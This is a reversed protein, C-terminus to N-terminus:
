NTLWSAIKVEKTDDNIDTSPNVEAFAYGQNGLINIFFDEIGSIQSQSYTTGTLASTVNAYASIAVPIDGVVDVGSITYKDGEFLSFSIYIDKLDKSLSIQSSEISFKLYGRNKYFSELSEIDGELKERSYANNNNLFSFPFNSYVFVIPVGVPFRAKKCPIFTDNRTGAYYSHVLEHVLM